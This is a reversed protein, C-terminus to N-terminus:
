PQRGAAFNVKWEGGPWRAEIYYCGARPVYLSGPFDAYGPAPQSSTAPHQPDLIPQREALPHTAIEFWVPAHDHLGAGYLTIRGKFSAKAVWEAKHWWGHAPDYTRPDTGHGYDLTAHTASQGLRNFASGWVPFSGIQPPLQPDITRPTPGAPCDRPIVGLPPPTQAIVRGAGVSREEARLAPIALLLGVLVFLFGVFVFRIQM